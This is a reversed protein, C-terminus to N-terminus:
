TQCDQCENECIHLHLKNNLLSCFSLICKYMSGSHTGRSLDVYLMSYFMLEKLTYICCIKRDRCSNFKNNVIELMPEGQGEEVREINYAM